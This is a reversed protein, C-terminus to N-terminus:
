LDDTFSSYYRGTKTFYEQPDCGFLVNYPRLRISTIDNFGGSRGLGCSFKLVKCSQLSPGNPDTHEVHFRDCFVFVAKFYRRSGISSINFRYPVQLAATSSLLTM